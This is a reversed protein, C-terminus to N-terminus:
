YLKEVNTFDKHCHDLFALPLFSLTQFTILLKLLFYGQFVRSITIMQYVTPGQVFMVKFQMPGNYM